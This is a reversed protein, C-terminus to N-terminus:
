FDDRFYNQKEMRDKLIRRKKKKLNKQSNKERIMYFTCMIQFEDGDFHLYLRLIKKGKSDDTFIDDSTTLALLLFFPFFAAFLKPLEELLSIMEDDDIVTLLDCVLRMPGLTKLHTIRPSPPTPFDPSNDFMSYFKLRSLKFTQSLNLRKQCFIEKWM